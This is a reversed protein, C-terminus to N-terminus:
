ATRRQVGSMASLRAMLAIRMLHGPDILSACLFLRAAVAQQKSVQM